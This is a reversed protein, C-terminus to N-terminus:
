RKAREIAGKTPLVLLQGPYLHGMPGLRDKNPYYLDYWLDSNGYLKQAISKLTDGAVVQYVPGLEGSASSMPTNPKVAQVPPPKIKHQTQPKPKPAPPTEEKYKDIQLELEKREAPTIVPAPPPAPPPEPVAVPLPPPEPVVVPPPAEVQAQLYQSPIRHRPKLPLESAIQIEVWRDGGSFVSSPLSNHRGLVVQFNNERVTVTQVEQWLNNGSSDASDWISFRVPLTDTMPTRSHDTFRGKLRFMQPTKTALVSGVVSLCATGIILFRYKMGNEQGGSVVRYDENRRRAQEGV